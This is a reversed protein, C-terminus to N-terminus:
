AEATVTVGAAEYLEELQALQEDTLRSLDLAPVDTVKADVELRDTFLKLHKGLRELNIGKDALKIKKCLGYAHKQEGNGEFLECVELGAVAAATDDDLDLIQKPSGDSEFLKRPDFFALKALEGLVREATIELKGLTKGHKKSIQQAVKPNRLLVSGTQEAGKRSYGAAIAARTANLDTLYEAVFLAQRKTLEKAM